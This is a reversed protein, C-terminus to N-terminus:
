RQPTVEGLLSPPMLAEGPREHFERWWEIGELTGSEIELALRKV